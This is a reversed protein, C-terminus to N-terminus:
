EVLEGEVVELGMFQNADEVQADTMIAESEQFAEDVQADSPLNEELKLEVEKGCVDHTAKAHKLAAELICYKVSVVEKNDNTINIVPCVECQLLDM